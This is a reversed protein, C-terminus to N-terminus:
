SGWDPEMHTAELTTTVMSTYMRATLILPTGNQTLLEQVSVQVGSRDGTQSM